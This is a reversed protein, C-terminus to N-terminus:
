KKQTKGGEALSREVAQRVRFSELADDLDTEVSEGDRVSRVFSEIEPIYGKLYFSNMGGGLLTGSPSWRQAHASDFRVDLPHEKKLNRYVTLERCDQASVLWNAAAAEVREYSPYWSDLASAIFCGKSGSKFDVLLTTHPGSKRASLSEVEGVLGQALNLFHHYASYYRISLLTDAPNPNVESLIKKLQVYIPAYRRPWAVQYLRGTERIAKMIEKAGEESTVAPTECLVHKGVRLAETAIRHHMSTPSAIMVGDVDEQLVKEYGAYCRIRTIREAESASEEHGTALCVLDIEKVFYISPILVDKAHRGAGIL